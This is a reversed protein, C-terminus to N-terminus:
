EESIQGLEAVGLKAWLKRRIQEDYLKWKTRMYDDDYAGGLFGIPIEFGGALRRGGGYHRGTESGGLAEKLFTDPNLTPKQTRLSGVIVEQEGKKRLIGYVIATHVYEETLLFDAAQPIADRDEYRIYGVGALSYNDRVTRAKLATSIVDMVNRSRRNSLIASLAEQDVFEALYASARFDARRANVMGSTESRIGHMLATAVKIHDPQTKDLRLLGEELYEAYITATAGWTTRVDSFEGLLVGQPEHHDVVALVPVGAETLRETLGTTTGQNDVFVSGNYHSLNTHEQVKMLEISLLEVLAINEQHSIVGDYAIDCEIDFREAIMKHALASSIGDPDPFSQM